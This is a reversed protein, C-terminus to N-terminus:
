GKRKDKWRAQAARRAVERRQDALAPLGHFTAALWAAADAAAAARSHLSIAVALGLSVLLCAVFMMWERAIRRPNLPMEDLVRQRNALELQRRQVEVGYRYETESGKMGAGLMDFVEGNTKETDPKEAM